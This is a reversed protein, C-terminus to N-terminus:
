GKKESNKLYEALFKRIENEEKKSIIKDREYRNLFSEWKSLPYATPSVLMHCRSCQNIYFKRGAQLEKNDEFALDEPDIKEALLFNFIRPYNFNNKLSVALQLSFNNDNNLAFITKSFSLSADFNVFNYQINPRIALIETMLQSGGIPAYGYFSLDASLNRFFPIKGGFNLLYPIQDSYKITSVTGSTDTKSLPFRYRYGTAAQFFFDSFNKTLLILGGADIQGDGIQQNQNLMSAPIKGDLQIALQVPEALFRYKLLARPDALGNGGESRLYFTYPVSASFFLNNVVGWGLNLVPNLTTFKSSATVTKGTQDFSGLPFISSVGVGAFVENGDLTAAGTFLPYNAFPLKPYFNLNFSDNNAKELIEQNKVLAEPDNEEQALSVPNVALSFFIFTLLLLKQKSRQM